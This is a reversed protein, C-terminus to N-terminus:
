WVRVRVRVSVKVKVRQTHTSTAKSCIKLPRSGEGLVSRVFAFPSMLKFYFRTSLAVKFCVRESGEISRAM